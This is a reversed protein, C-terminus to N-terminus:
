VFLLAKLDQIRTELSKIQGAVETGEARLRASVEERELELVALRAELAKREARKFKGLNSIERNTQRIKETIEVAEERRRVVEAREQAAKLEMTLREYEALKEERQGPKDAWYADLKAQLEAKAAQEQRREDATEIERIRARWKAINQNNVRKAEDSLERSVVYRGDQWKYSKSDRLNEAFMILNKYRVLDLETDDDSLGIALELIQRATVIRNGFESRQHDNPHDDRAYDPQIKTKWAGAVAEGIASAVRAWLGPVQLDNRDSLVNVAQQILALDGRFNDYQDEGPHNRYADARLNIYAVSLSGIQDVVHDRVYETEEGPSLDIGRAFANAAELLRPSRVSSQWGSAQGKILWAKFNQPDVEIVKTAYQEAEAMNSSDLAHTALELYTAASQSQDITVTGRIQQVKEQLREQTYKM